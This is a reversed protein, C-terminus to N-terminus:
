PCLFCYSIRTKVSNKLQFPTDVDQRGSGFAVRFLSRNKRKSPAATSKYHSNEVHCFM